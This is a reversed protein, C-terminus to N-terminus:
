RMCRTCDHTLMRSEVILKPARVQEVARAATESGQEGVVTSLSLSSEEAGKASRQAPPLAPPPLILPTFALAPSHPLAILRPAHPSLRAQENPQSHREYSKSQGSTLGDDPKTPFLDLGARRVPIGSSRIVASARSKIFVGRLSCAKM